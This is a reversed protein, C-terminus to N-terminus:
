EDQDMRMASEGVVRPPRFRNSTGRTTEELYDEIGNTRWILNWVSQM